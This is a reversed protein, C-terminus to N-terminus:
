QSITRICIALHPYQAEFGSSIEILPTQSWGTQWNCCIRLYCNSKRLVTLFRCFWWTHMASLCSPFSSSIDGTGSIDLLRGVYRIPASYSVRVRGKLKSPQCAVVLVLEAHPLSQSKTRARGGLVARLMRVSVQPHYQSRAEDPAMAVREECLEKIDASKM